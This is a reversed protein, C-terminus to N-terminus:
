HYKKKKRIPLDQSKNYWSEPLKINLQVKILVNYSHMITHITTEETKRRCIMKHDDSGFISFKSEDKFIM